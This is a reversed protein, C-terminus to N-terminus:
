MKRAKEDDISFITFKVKQYKENEIMWSEVINEVAGGKSAPVPLYGSTVIAINIMKEELYKIM